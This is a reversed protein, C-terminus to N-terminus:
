ETIGGQRDQPYPYIYQQLLLSSLSSITDSSLTSSFLLVVSLQGIFGSVGTASVYSPNTNVVWGSGTNEVSIKTGLTGVSSWTITDGSSLDYASNSIGFQDTTLTAGNVTGDYGNGSFDKADGKFDYGAVLGKFLDAYQHEIFPFQQATGPNGSNFQYTVEDASLAYNFIAIEDILGAYDYVLARDLGIHMVTDSTWSLSATATNTQLVGNIYLKLTTGDYTGVIHYWSGTSIASDSFFYATSTKHLLFIIKGDNYEGIFGFETDTGDNFYLHRATRSNTSYFWYSFSMNTWGTTIGGVTLYDNTGDFSYANDIIGSVSSTAGSSTLNYNGTEDTLDELKWYAVCKSMDPKSLNAM